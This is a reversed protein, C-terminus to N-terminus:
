AVQERPADAWLGELDYFGRAEAHFLHTVVEGFDLLVWQGTQQGETGLPRVGQERLKTEVHEAMATVQRESDGSAIVLYDAYSTMGRTDLILVDAGKKELVLSAVQQAMAKARANEERVPAAAKRARRAPEKRQAKKKAASKKMM